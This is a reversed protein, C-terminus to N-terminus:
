VAQLTWFDYDNGFVESLGYRLVLMRLIEVEDYELESLEEFDGPFMRAMQEIDIDYELEINVIM